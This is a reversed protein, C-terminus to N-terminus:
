SGFILIQLCYLGLNCISIYILFIFFCSSKTPLYFLTFEVKSSVWQQYQKHKSSKDYNSNYQLENHCSKSCQSERCFVTFPQFIAQFSNWLLATCFANIFTSFKLVFICQCYQPPGPTFQFKIAVLNSSGGPGVPGVVMIHYCKLIPQKSYSM